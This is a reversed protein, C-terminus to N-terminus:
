EVYHNKIFEKIYWDVVADNFLTMDLQKTFATLKAMVGLKKEISARDYKT